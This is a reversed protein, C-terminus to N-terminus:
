AAGAMAQAADFAKVERVYNNINHDGFDVEHTSMGLQTVAVQRYPWVPPLRLPVKPVPDNRYRYACFPVSTAISVFKDDGGLPPAFAAVKVPPTGDATLQAGIMLAMVAGLSHGCIAFPGRAAILSVQSMVFETANYFGFHVWGLAPRNQMAHSPMGLALFDLMWGTDNHTGEIAIVNLGDARTTLFVRVSTGIGGITLPDCEYFPVAAVNYTAAAADVLESDTPLKV